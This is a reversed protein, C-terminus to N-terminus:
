PRYRRMLMPNIPKPQQPLYPDQAYGGGMAHPAWYPTTTRLINQFGPGMDSIRAKKLLGGLIDPGLWKNGAKPEKFGPHLDGLIDLGGGVWDKAGTFVDGVSLPNKLAGYINTEGQVQPSPMDPQVFPVDVGLGQHQAVSMPADPDSGPGGYTIHEKLFDVPATVFDGIKSPADKIGEVLNPIFNEFDIQPTGLSQITGMINQFLLANKADKSTLPDAAKEAYDEVFTGEYHKKTEELQKAYDKRIDEDKWISGIGTLIAGLPGFVSPLVTGLVQQMFGANEMESQYADYIAKIEDVLNDVVGGFFDEQKLARQKKEYQEGPKGKAYEQIWQRLATQAM